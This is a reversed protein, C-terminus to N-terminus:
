VDLQAEAQALRYQNRGCGKALYLAQDAALIFKQIKDPKSPLITETGIGIKVFKSM